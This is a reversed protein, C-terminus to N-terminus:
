RVNKIEPPLDLKKKRVLNSQLRLAIWRSEAISYNGSLLAARDAKCAMEFESKLQDNVVLQANPDNSATGFSTFFEKEEAQKRIEPAVFILAIVIILSIASFIKTVMKTELGLFKPKVEVWM